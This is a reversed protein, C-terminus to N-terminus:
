KQGEWKWTVVNHFHISDQCDSVQLDVIIETISGLVTIFDFINWTDRFYNQPSSYTKLWKASFLSFRWMLSCFPTLCTKLDKSDQYEGCSWFGHDESYVGLLLPCHLSHQPTQPCHWLSSTGLLVSALPTLFVVIGSDSVFTSQGWM